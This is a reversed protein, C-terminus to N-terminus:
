PQGRTVLLILYFAYHTVNLVLGYFDNCCRAQDRPNRARPSALQGAIVHLPECPFSSLKRVLALLSKGIRHVLWKPTPHGWGLRGIVTAGTSMVAVEHSVRPWFQGALDKGFEQGLSVTFTLLRNSKKLVYTPTLQHATNRLWSAYYLTM